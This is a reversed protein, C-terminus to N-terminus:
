SGTTAGSTPEIGPVLISNVPSKVILLTVIVQKISNPTKRAKRLSVYCAHKEERGGSRGGTEHSNRKLLDTLRELTVKYSLNKGHRNHEPLSM